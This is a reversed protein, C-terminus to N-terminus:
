EGTAPVDGPDPNAGPNPPRQVPESPLKFHMRAAQVLLSSWAEFGAEDWGRNWPAQELIAEILRPYRSAQRVAPVLGRDGRDSAPLPPPFVTGRPLVLQHAGSEFFGAREASRVFVQRAAQVQTRSVGLRVMELELGMTAPIREGRHGDFIARYLPVALFAEVRAQRQSGEDIVRRGLATLVILNRSSELFGFMKAAAVKNRFAGSNLTSHGLWAALQEPKCQGWSGAVEGAAHEAESLDAYPFGITSRSRPPRPPNEGTGVATLRPRDETV